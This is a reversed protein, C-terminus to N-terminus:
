IGKHVRASVGLSDGSTGLGLEVQGCGSSLEALGPHEQALRQSELQQSTQLDRQLQIPVALYRAYTTM